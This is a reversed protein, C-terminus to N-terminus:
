HKKTKKIKPNKNIKRRTKLNRRTNTKKKKGKKNTKKGGRLYPDSHIYQRYADYRKDIRILPFLNELEEDTIDIAECSTDYMYLNDVKEFYAYTILSTTRKLMYIKGVRKVKNLDDRWAPFNLEIIHTNKNIESTSLQQGQIKNALIFINFFIFYPCAMIDAGPKYTIQGNEVIGIRDNFNYRQQLITSVNTQDVTVKNIQSKILAIFNRANPSILESAFISPLEMTFEKMVLIGRSTTIWYGDRYFPNPNDVSWIKDIVEDGRYTEVIRYASGTEDNVTALNQSVNPLDGPKDRVVFENSRLTVDNSLFYGQLCRFVHDINNPYIKLLESFLANHKKYDGASCTNKLAIILRVLNPIKIPGTIFQGTTYDIQLQGHCVNSLIVTVKERPVLPQKQPPVHTPVFFITTLYEQIKPFYLNFNYKMKSILSNQEPDNQMKKLYIEALDPIKLIENISSIQDPRLGDIDLVDYAQEPFESLNIIKEETSMDSWLKIKDDEEM